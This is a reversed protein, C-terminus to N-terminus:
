ALRLVQRPAVSVGRDTGDAFIVATRSRKAPNNASATSIRTATAGDHSRVYPLEAVAGVGVGIAVPGRDAM